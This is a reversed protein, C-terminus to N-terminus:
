LNGERIMELGADGVGSDTAQGEASARQSVAIEAEKRPSVVAAPKPVLSPKRQAAPGQQLDTAVPQDRVHLVRIPKNLNKIDWWM